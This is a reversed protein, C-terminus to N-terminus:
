WLRTDRLYGRTLENKLEDNVTGLKVFSRIRCTNEGLTPWNVTGTINASQGAAHTDPDGTKPQSPDQNNPKLFRSENVKPHAPDAISSTTGRTVMSALNTVIQGTDSRSSYVLQDAAASQSSLNVPRVSFSALLTARTKSSTRGSASLM